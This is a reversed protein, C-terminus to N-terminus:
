NYELYDWLDTSKPPAYSATAGDIKTSRVFQSWELGQIKSLMGELQRKWEPIPSCTAAHNAKPYGCFGCRGSSLSPSSCGCVRSSKTQLIITDPSKLGDVQGKLEQISILVQDYGLEAFTKLLFGFFFSDCLNTKTQHACRLVAPDRYTKIQQHIYGLM